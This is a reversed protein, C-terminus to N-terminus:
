DAFAFAPDNFLATSEFGTLSMIRTAGIPVTHATGTLKLQHAREIFPARCVAEV